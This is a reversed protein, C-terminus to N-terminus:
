PADRREFNQVYVLLEGSFDLLRGLIARIRVGEPDGAAASSSAPEATMDPGDVWNTLYAVFGATVIGFVEIAVAATSVPTLEAFMGGFPAGIGYNADWKELKPHQAIALRQRVAKLLKQIYAEIKRREHREQLLGKDNLDHLTLQLAERLVDPNDLLHHFAELDYEVRNQIVGKKLGEMSYDAYEKAHDASPRFREYHSALLQILKTNTLTAYFIRNARENIKSSTPPHLGLRVLVGNPDRFFEPWLERDKLIHTMVEDVRKLDKAVDMSLPDDFREDPM